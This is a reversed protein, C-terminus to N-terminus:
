KVPVRFPLQITFKTYKGVESDCRITGGLKQTVLNYVIHLGLGTGGRDRATSFFPEFIKNINEIPIGCGDDSYELVLTEDKQTIFFQLCGTEGKPYAHSLSNMVLNTILQSYAGPFSNLKLQKDGTVKIQHGAHKLRPMLSRLVEETYPKLAFTRRELNTQDVAVQKFSQVLEASRSLNRLILESSEQALNIYDDLMSRKLKGNQLTTLFATTEDQLTSAATVGVGIPTNVEHAVGAVLSGLAAMKEAEILHQQAAKLNELAQSLDRTREEVMSELRESYEKLAEDAEVRDTIDEYSILLGKVNGYEDHLPIKNTDLWVLRGDRHIQSDIIHYQPQEGEMVIDDQMRYFEAESKDWSFDYDTKGVIEQPSNLGAVRAFNQNCGLFTSNRDKWYIFQPINDIVLQLFRERERLSAELHKYDSIDRAITAFFEIHGDETKQVMFFQSMSIEWGDQTLFVNDGRWYGKELATPIAEDRVTRIGEDSHYDAINTQTADEDAGLGLMRRGTHNIYLVRGDKDSIGVLDSTAELIAKFRTNEHEVQQLTDIQQKQDACQQDLRQNEAELLMQREYGDLALMLDIRLREITLDSKLLVSDVDAEQVIEMVLAADMQSVLLILQTQCSQMKRRTQKILSLSSNNDDALSLGLLVLAIDPQTTLMSWAEETSNAWLCNLRRSKLDSCAQNILQHIDPSKDIILVYRNLSSNKLSSLTTGNNHKM